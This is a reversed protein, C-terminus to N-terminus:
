PGDGAGPIRNEFYTAIMVIVIFILIGGIIYIATM